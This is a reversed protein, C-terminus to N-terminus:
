LKSRFYHMFRGVSGFTKLYDEMYKYKSPLEHYAAFMAVNVVEKDDADSFFFHLDSMIKKIFVIIDKDFTPKEVVVKNIFSYNRAPMSKALLKGKLTLALLKATEM